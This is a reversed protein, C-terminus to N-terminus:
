GTAVQAAWNRRRDGVLPVVVLRGLATPGALALGTFIGALEGSLVSPIALCAWGAAGAALVHVAQSEISACLLHVVLVGAPAYPLSFVAVLFMLGPLAGLESTWGSMVLLEVAFAMVSVAWAQLYGCTGPTNPRGPRPADVENM